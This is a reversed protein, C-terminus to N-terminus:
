GRREADGRKVSRKLPTLRRDQTDKTLSYMRVDVKAGTHKVSPKEEMELIKGTHAWFIKVVLHGAQATDAAVDICHVLVRVDLVDTDSILVAGSWMLRPTVGVDAVPLLPFTATEM